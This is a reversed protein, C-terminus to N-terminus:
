DTATNPHPPTPSAAMAPELSAPAEVLGSLWCTVTVGLIAILLAGRVGSAVLAAAAVLGALALLLLACFLRCRSAAPERDVRARM